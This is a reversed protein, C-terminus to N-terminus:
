KIWRQIRNLKSKLKDALNLLGMVINRELRFVSKMDEVSSFVEAQTVPITLIITIILLPPLSIMTVTTHSSHGAPPIIVSQTVIDALLVQHSRVSVPRTRCHLMVVNRCIVDRIVVVM